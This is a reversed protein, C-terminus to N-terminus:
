RRTPSARVKAILDRMRAADTVGHVLDNGIIFAPTGRVGTESALEINREVRARIETSEMDAILRPMDLDVSRALELVQTHDLRGRFEMLASHLALYKGQRGAALAAFSAVRSIEGLMPLDKYVIKVGNDSAIVAKLISFARKCYGCQYDVFAVVVVDGDPNGDFASHDDRQLHREPIVAADRSPPPATGQLATLAGAAILGAALTLLFLRM